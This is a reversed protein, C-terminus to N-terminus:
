LGLLASTASKIESGYKELQRPVLVHFFFAPSAMAYKTSEARDLEVIREDDTLMLTKERNQELNGVEEEEQKRLTYSPPFSFIVPPLDSPMEGQVNEPLLRALSDENKVRLYFGFVDSMRALEKNFKNYKPDQAPLKQTTVVSYPIGREILNVLRRAQPPGFTRMFAILEEDKFKNIESLLKYDRQLGCKEITYYLAHCVMTDISIKEHSMYIKDYMLKRYHIFNLLETRIHQFVLYVRDNEGFPRLTSSDIIHKLKELPLVPCESSFPPNGHYTDRALFDIRDVDV